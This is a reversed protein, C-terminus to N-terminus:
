ALLEYIACGWIIGCNVLALLVAASGMDKARKAFPHKELSIYDVVWEVASNLLEVILVLLVAALLIATQFPSFPLFCAAGVFLLALLSEQRFASEHLFAAKLGALSHFLAHWARLLGSRKEITADAHTTQSQNTNTEYESM